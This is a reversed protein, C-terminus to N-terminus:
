SQKNGEDLNLVEDIISPLQEVLQFQMAVKFADEPTKVQHLESSIRSRLHNLIEDEIGIKRFDEWVKRFQEKKSM